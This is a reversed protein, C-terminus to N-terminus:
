GEIGEALEDLRVRVQGISDGTEDLILGALDALQRLREGLVIRSARESATLVPTRHLEFTAGATVEASRDAPTGALLRGVPGLVHAMLSMATGAFLRTVSPPEDQAAFCRQLLMTMVTYSGNFLKILDLASPSTIVTQDDSPLLDATVPNTACPWAPEFTPDSALHERLERRIRRFQGYHADTWDGRVGEGQHVLTALAERATDLDTVATLESIKFTEDTVQNRPDGIFLRSPGVVDHLTRFGDEITEYLQGVTALSEADPAVGDRVPALSGRPADPPEQDLDVDDDDEIVPEISMDSPRELHMFRSLTADDFRCLSISIGGPYFRSTQPLPPRAFHASGGVSTLLNSVLSLHLMEETAVNVIVRSWRRVADAQTDSLGAGDTKLSFAAYLYSCCLGHELEAAEELLSILEIRSAVSMETM